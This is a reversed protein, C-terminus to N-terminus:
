GTINVTRTASSNSNLMRDFVTVNFSYNTAPLNTYNVYLVQTLYSTENVKSSMNFLYFTINKFNSEALSVNIFLSNQALTANQSPTPNIYSIVPATSDYTFTFNAVSFNSRSSNDYALYNWYYVGDRPITFSINSSNSTGSINTSNTAILSTSNWVYLTANKLRINDSFNAYLWVTASSTNTGNIPSVLIVSPSATDITYILTFNTSAWSSNSNNDFALYNWYYTGEKPLRYSINATSTSGTLNTTNALILHSTSNWVYLTSNALRRDDTINASFINNDAAVTSGNAPSILAVTPGSDRLTSSTSSNVKVTIYGYAYNYDQDTCYVRIGYHQVPWESTQFTYSHTRGGTALGNSGHSYTSGTGTYVSYYNTSAYVNYYTSGNYAYRTTNCALGLIVSESSSNSSNYSSCWWANDYNYVNFGCSADASTTATVTFSSGTVTSNSLPSTINATPPTSNIFQVQGNKITATGNPGSVTAKIVYKGRNWGSLPKGINLIGTGNITLSGATNNVIGYSATSYTRCYDDWCSSGSYAYEVRTVNVSASNYSIDTVTLRITANEDLNFYSKYNGNQDVNNYSGSYPELANFYLSSYTNVIGGSSDKWESEIYNYGVKWGGSPAYITVTKNGTINCSAAGNRTDCNGVSFEYEELTSRYNDYRWQYLRSLNGTTSAGSSAKTLGISATINSTTRQNSGISGWTARFPVARFSMWGTETDNNSVDKVYLTLYHYGGWSGSGWNNNNPCIAIAATGNFSTNTYNTYLTQQRVGGIWTDELIKTITFNTGNVLTSAYWWPEYISVTANACTDSDIEYSGVNINVRFPQAQFSIWGTASENSPDKMEIEGWYYGSPWNGANYTINALARGILTLNNRGVLTINIDEPYNYEISQYTTPNWRRLVMDTVTANIYDTENYTATWGMYNKTTTINVYMDEAPKISYKYYTGSSDTVRVDVYFSITNFWGTGTDSGNVDLVVLYYGAGWSGQTRNIQIIYNSTNINSTSWYWPSSRDVTISGSVYKSSNLDTCPWRKCDQIKKVSITVNEGLAVNGNDNYDGAGVVRIYLTINEGSNFYNKYTCSTSSLTCDIPSSYVDWRRISFWAYGYDVNGGSDVGKLIARYYGTKWQGDATKNPNLTISGQGTTITAVAGSLNTYNYEAPPWIWEGPSGQYEVKEVSVTGSLGSSGYAGWWNSGAEYMQVTLTVSSTPKAQWVSAYGYLYFAKAEFIGYVIDSSGDKGSVKLRVNYRGGDWNETAKVTCTYKGQDNSAQCSSLSSNLTFTKGSDLNKVEEVAVTANNVVQKQQTNVSCASGTGYNSSNGSGTLNNVSAKGTPNDAQIAVLEFYVTDTTKFQWVYYSGSVSSVDGATDKTVVCIDYPNILFRASTGLSDNNASILANYLGGDKPPDLKLMQTTANWAWEYVSNSINVASFSTVESYTMSTGNMHTISAVSADTLNIGTQSLNYASLSIYVYENTGFLEKTDGAKNVSQASVISDIVNVSRQFTQVDGNYALTVSIVYKGINSPSQMSFQYCSDTGCTENWIVTAESITNRLKDKISVNFFTDNIARIIKSQNQKNRVYTEFHLTKNKFANYGYEFGSNQDRKIFSLDWDRVEFFTTSALSAGGSKTITVSARYGGYGFTLSDVTFVFRNTFTNNSNLETSNILMIVNGASDTIHGSFTYIDSTVNTIVFVEVSAQDGKAFVNKFTQGISDKIYLNFNFPVVSFYTHSKFNNIEAVYKGTTSPSTIHRRCKGDIGTTCAFESIINRDPDRVSGNISVNASFLIREGVIRRAEAIITINEGPHYSARDTRVRVNDITSNFVLIELSSSWSVNEPDTYNAAIIYEGATSPTTLGPANPYFSSNTYFAGAIDTTLNIRVMSTGSSKSKISINVISNAAPTNNSVVTGNALINTLLVFGKLEINESTTYVSDPLTFFVDAQYSAFVFNSFTLILFPVFLLNISKRFM